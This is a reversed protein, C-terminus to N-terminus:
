EMGKNNQPLLFFPMPMIEQIRSKLQFQNNQGQTKNHTKPKVCKWQYFPCNVGYYM